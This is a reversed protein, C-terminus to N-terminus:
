GGLILICIRRKIELNACTIVFDNIHAGLVIGTCDIMVTLM